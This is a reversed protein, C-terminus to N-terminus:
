CHHGGPAAVASSVVQCRHSNGSNRGKIAVVETKQKVQNDQTTVVLHV